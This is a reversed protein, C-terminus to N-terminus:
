GNHKWHINKKGKKNMSNAGNQLSKIRIVSNSQKERVFIAAM